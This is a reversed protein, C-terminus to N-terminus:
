SARMFRVSMERTGTATSTTSSAKSMLMKPLSEMRPALWTARNKAAPTHMQRDIHSNLVGQFAKSSAILLLIPSTVVAITMRNRIPAMEPVQVILPTM